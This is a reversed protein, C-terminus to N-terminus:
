IRTIDIRFRGILIENRDIMVVVDKVVFEDSRCGEYCGACSEGL